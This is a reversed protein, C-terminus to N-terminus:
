LFSSCIRHSDILQCYYSDEVHRIKEMIVEHIAVIASIRDANVEPRAFIDTRLADLIKYAQHCTWPQKLDFALLLRGAEDNEIVQPAQEPEGRKIRYIVHGSYQSNFENQLRRQILSNASYIVLM